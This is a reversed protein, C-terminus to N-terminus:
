AIIARIILDPKHRFFPELGVSDWFCHIGKSNLSNEKWQWNRVIWIYVSATWAIYCSKTDWDEDKMAAKIHLGIILETVM